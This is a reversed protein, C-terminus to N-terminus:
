RSPQIEATAAGTFQFRVTFEPRTFRAMRLGSAHERVCAVATNPVPPSDPDAEVAALSGDSAYTLILRHNGMPMCASARAQIQQMVALAAERAPFEPAPADPMVGQGPTRGPPVFDGPADVLGISECSEWSRAASWQGQAGLCAHYAPRNLADCTLPVAGLERSSEPCPSAMPLAFRYGRSSECVRVQTAPLVCEAAPSPDASRPVYAPAPRDTARSILYVVGGVAALGAAIGVVILLASPDGGGGSGCSAFRGMSDRCTMSAPPQLPQFSACGAVSGAVVCAVLRLRVAGMM